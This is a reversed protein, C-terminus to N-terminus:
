EAEESYFELLDDRLVNPTRERRRERAGASYDRMATRLDRPRFHIGQARARQLAAQAEDNRGEIFALAVQQRYSARAESYSDIKRQVVEDMMREQTLRATPAGIAQLVGVRLREEPRYTLKQTYPNRVEGSDIIDLGLLIRRVQSPLAKQLFANMTEPRVEGHKAQDRVVGGMFAAYAGLDSAAPGMWGRTLDAIGGPGVSNSFDLGRLGPLGFAAYRTLAPADDDGGAIKLSESLKEDFMFRSAYDVLDAGPMALLSSMGGLAQFTAMLKLREKPTMQAIMEIEHVFFSKFQGLV